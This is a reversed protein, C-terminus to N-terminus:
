SAHRRPNAFRPEADELLLSPSSFPALRELFDLTEMVPSSKFFRADPIEMWIQDAYAYLQYPKDGIGDGDRDFGQYDDWFNRRWHNRTTSFSGGTDVQSLNGEFVNDEILNGERDGLFQIGVANYAIRNGRVTNHTDPEFPSTDLAIANGCYIIENNEVVTNSAEKLGIGVGTAGTAHSIVNNRIELGITYMVSIGVSNNIFRNGEVLNYQSFMFHLSYRGREAVNGVIRNDHSYWVVIDRADHVHNGEVRNHMSYWLRIGDGRTGLDTAKSTIDNGILRNFSANKLDVGFLCDTFRNGRIENDDGRVNLCADDNDHAGGSGTFHLGTLTAGGTELSFVTGRGGGDITVRGGGDIVLPKVLVVPGAYTGPPPRLVSGAPAADVLAQFAPLLPPPGPLAAAGATLGLGVVTALRLASTLISM